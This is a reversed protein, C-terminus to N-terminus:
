QKVLEVSEDVVQGTYRDIAVHVWYRQEGDIVFHDTGGAVPASNLPYRGTQAVVDIMLNWTRTTGIDALARIATEMYRQILNNATKAGGSYVANNFLDNTFGDYDGIGSVTSDIQTFQPNNYGPVFKGVLEGINALQGTNIAAGNKSTTRNILLNAINTVENSTVGGLPYEAAGNAQTEDRVAGSLIAQLVKPQRTNLNVKGAVLGDPRNDENICFVDLLASDGSEPTFFDINKYPEDRFVYGLDAVSRFPRNLMIPRSQTTPVTTGTNSSGNVYIPDSAAPNLYATATPLGLTTTDSGNGSTGYADMGRRVVNDPDEYYLPGNATVVYPNNQALFGHWIQNGNTNTGSSNVSWKISALVQPATTKNGLARGPNGQNSSGWYDLHATPRPSGLVDSPYPSPNNASFKSTGGGIPIKKIGYWQNEPSWINGFRSSRPEFFSILGKADYEWNDPYGKIGDPAAGKNTSNIMYGTDNAFNGAYKQDYTQYGGLPSLFAMRITAASQPTSALNSQSTFGAVTFEYITPDGKKKNANGTIPDLQAVRMPFSGVFMGAVKPDGTAECDSIGSSSLGLTSGDWQKLPSSSGLDLANTSPMPQLGAAGVHLLVTPEHYPFSTSTTSLLNVDMETTQPTLYNIIPNVSGGAQILNRIYNGNYTITKGSVTNLYSITSNSFQSATQGGNANYSYQDFGAGYGTTSNDGLSLYYNSYVASQNAGSPDNSDGTVM